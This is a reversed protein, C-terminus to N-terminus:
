ENKAGGKKKSFFTSTKNYDPRHQRQQQQGCVQVQIMIKKNRPTNNEYKAV